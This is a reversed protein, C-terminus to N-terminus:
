CAALKSLLSLLSLRNGNDRCLLRRFRLVLLVPLRLCCQPAMLMCYRPHLKGKTSLFIPSAFLRSTRKEHFHFRFLVLTVSLMVKLHCCQNELVENANLLRTSSNGIQFTSVVLTAAPGRVNSPTTVGVVAVSVFIVLLLLLCLLSVLLILVM